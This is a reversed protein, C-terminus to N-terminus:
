RSHFSYTVMGSVYSYNLIKTATDVPYTAVGLEIDLRHDAWPLYVGARLRAAGSAKYGIFADGSIGGWIGWGNATKGGIGFGLSIQSLPSKDLGFLETVSADPFLILTEGEVLYKVNATLGNVLGNKKGGLDTIGFAYGVSPDWSYTYV